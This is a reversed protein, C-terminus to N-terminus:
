HKILYIRAHWDYYLQQMYTYAHRWENQQQRQKKNLSAAKHRAEMRFGRGWALNSVEQAHTPPGAGIGM